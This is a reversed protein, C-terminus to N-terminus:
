IGGVTLTELLFGFDEVEEGSMGVNEVEEFDVLVVVVEMQDGLETRGAIIKEGPDGSARQHFRLSGLNQLLQHRGDTIAVM